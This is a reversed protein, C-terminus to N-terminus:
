EEALREIWAVWEPCHYVRVTYLLETSVADDIGANPVDTVVYASELRLLQWALM